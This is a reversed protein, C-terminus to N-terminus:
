NKKCFIKDLSSRSKAHDAIAKVFGLLTGVGTLIYFATFLRGADTVPALDGYGVTSLTTVSFYFSDLLRWGETNHYFFTGVLLLVAVFIFFELLEPETLIEWVTRFFNSFLKIMKKNKIGQNYWDELM